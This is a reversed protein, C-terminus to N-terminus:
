RADEWIAARAEQIMAFTIGDWDIGSAHGSEICGIIGDEYGAIRKLADRLRDIKERLRDRENVAEVVLASAEGVFCSGVYRGNADVFIRRANPELRWPRPSPENTM